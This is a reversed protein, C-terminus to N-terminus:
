VPFLPLASVSGHTVANELRWAYLNEALPSSFLAPYIVLRLFAQLVNRYFAATGHAAGAHCFLFQGM